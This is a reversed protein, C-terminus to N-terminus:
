MHVLMAYLGETRRALEEFDEDTLTHPTGQLRIKFIKARAAHDPLDIKIKRQFRINLALLDAFADSDSAPCCSHM